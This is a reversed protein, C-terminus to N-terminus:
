FRFCGTSRIRQTATHINERQIPSGCYPCDLSTLTGTFVVNGGCSECRVESQGPVELDAGADHLIKLREIMDHYDQEQIVADPRIEIEKVFGCYPCQMRQQGINFVLDAGCGDCPFVRGRGEDTTQGAVDSRGLVEVSEISPLPTTM